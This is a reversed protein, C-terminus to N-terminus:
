EIGMEMKKRQAHEKMNKEFHTNIAKKGNKEREFWIEWNKRTLEDKFYTKCKNFCKQIDIDRDIAHQMEQKTFEFFDSAKKHEKSFNHVPETNERKKTKDKIKLARKNTSTMEGYSPKGYSPKRSLPKLAGTAKENVEQKYIFNEGNQLEYNVGSYKGDHAIIEHKILLRNEISFRIADYCKKRSWGFHNKLNEQCIKWNEPRSSLMCYLALADSNRCEQLVTNIIITYPKSKHKLNGDEFEPRYKKISM